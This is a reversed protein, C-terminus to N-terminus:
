QRCRGRVIGRCRHRQLDSPPHSRCQDGCNGDDDGFTGASLNAVRVGLTKGVTTMWEIGCLISADSGNASRNLVQIPYIPAGPAVGVVGDANNKAGIIGAIHTGHGNLDSWGVGGLCNQGIAQVDLDPDPTVGTDLVAVPTTVSAGATYVTSRDGEIRDVGTPLAQAVAKFTRNPSVFRVGPDQALQAKASGTLHAHYARLAVSYVRQVDVGSRADAAAAFAKADIGDRLTVVYDGSPPPVSVPRTWGPAIVAAAAIMMAAVARRIRHTFGTTVFRQLGLRAFEQRHTPTM